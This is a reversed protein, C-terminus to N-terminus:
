SCSCFATPSCLARICNVPVCWRTASRASPKQVGAPVLLQGLAPLPGLAFPAVQVQPDARVPVNVGRGPQEAVRLGAGAPGTSHSVSRASAAHAAASTPAASWSDSHQAIAASRMSRDSARAPGTWM